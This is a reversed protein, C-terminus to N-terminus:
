YQLATTSPECLRWISRQWYPSTWGMRIGNGDNDVPIPRLAQGAEDRWHFAEIPDVIWCHVVGAGRAASKGFHRVTSLLRKVESVYGIGTATWQWATYRRQPVRYDMYPGAVQSPYRRPRKDGLSAILGPMAFPNDATRRHIHTTSRHLDEPVFDTSTWLPLGDITRDLKLPVRLWYHQGHKPAPFPAGQLAQQVMAWALLSDLAVPDNSAVATETVVTVRFPQPDEVKDLKDLTLAYADFAPHHIVDYV